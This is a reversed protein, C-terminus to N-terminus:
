KSEGKLDVWVRGSLHGQHYMEWAGETRKDVYLFSYERDRTIDYGRRVAYHEFGEKTQQEFLGWGDENCGNCEM